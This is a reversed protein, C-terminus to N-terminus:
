LYVTESRLLKKRKAKEKAIMSARAVDRYVPSATWTTVGTRKDHTKTSPRSSRHSRSSRAKQLKAKEQAVKKKTMIDDMINGGFINISDEIARTNRAEEELKSMESQTKYFTDLSKKQKTLAKETESAYAGALARGQRAFSEDYSKKLRNYQSLQQATVYEQNALFEAQQRAQESKVRRYDIVQTRYERRASPSSRLITKLNFM